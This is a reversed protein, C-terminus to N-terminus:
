PTENPDFSPRPYLPKMEDKQLIDALSKTEGKLCDVLAFERLNDLGFSIYMADDHKDLKQGMYKDIIVSWEGNKGRVWSVLTLIGLALAFPNLHWVAPTHKWSGFMPFYCLLGVTHILKATTDNISNSADHNILDIFKELIIGHNSLFRFKNFALVRKKLAYFQDSPYTSRMEKGLDKEDRVDSNHL